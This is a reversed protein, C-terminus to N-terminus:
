TPMYVPRGDRFTLIVDYLVKWATQQNRVMQRAGMTLDGTSIALYYAAHAADEGSECFDLISERNKGSFLAKIDMWAHYVKGRKPTSSGHTDGGIKEIERTLDSANKKGEDAMNRFVSKLNLEPTKEEAKQYCEVRDYNIKLLKNLVEAAKAIGTKMNKKNKIQVAFNLVRICELTVFYPIPTVHNM